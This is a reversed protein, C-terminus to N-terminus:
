SRWILPRFAASASQVPALGHLLMQRCVQERARSATRETLHDAFLLHALRDPDEVRASRLGTLSREGLAVSAHVVGRPSVRCVSASRAGFEPFGARCSPRPRRRDTATLSPRSRCITEIDAVEISEAVTPAEGVVGRSVPLRGRAPVPSAVTPGGVLDVTVRCAGPPHWGGGWHALEFDSPRRACTKPSPMGDDRTPGQRRTASRQHGASAVTPLRTRSAVGM